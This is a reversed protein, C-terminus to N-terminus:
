SRSRTDVISWLTSVLELSTMHEVGQIKEWRALRELDARKAQVLHGPKIIQKPEPNLQRWVRHVLRRDTWVEFGERFGLAVAVQELNQRPETRLRDKTLMERRDDTGPRSQLTIM